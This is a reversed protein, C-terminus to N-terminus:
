VLRPTMFLSDLLNHSDILEFLRAFPSTITHPTSIVNDVAQGHYNDLKTLEHIIFKCYILSAERKGTSTTLAFFDFLSHFIWGDFNLIM